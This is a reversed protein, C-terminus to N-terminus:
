RVGTPSDNPLLTLFRSWILHESPGSYCFCQLWSAWTVLGTSSSLKKGPTQITEIRTCFGILLYSCLGVGEWGVFMLPFSSGLVLVLMFFVFLNLYSFYRSYAPDSRMYGVSYIHILSGVGTVILCMLISLQDFQLDIGIRLDGSEIWTWLSAIEPGHLDVTSMGIFNFVSVVFAAILTGPGLLSPIVKNERWLFAGLGNVLAGLLPFLLILFPLTPQFSAASAEQPASLLLSPVRDLTSGIDVMQNLTGPVLMRLWAFIVM